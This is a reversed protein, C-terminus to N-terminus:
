QLDSRRSRRGGGGGDRGRSELVERASMVAGRHHGWRRRRWRRRRPVSLVLVQVWVLVLVQDLVRDWSGAATEPQAQCADSESDGCHPASNHSEAEPEEGLEAGRRRGRRERRGRGGGLAAWFWSWEPAGVLSPSDRRWGSEGM